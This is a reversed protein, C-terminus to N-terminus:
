SAKQWRSALRNSDISWLWLKLDYWIAALTDGADLAAPDCPHLRAATAIAEVACCRLDLEGAAYGRLYLAADALAVWTALRNPPTTM